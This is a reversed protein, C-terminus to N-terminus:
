KRMDALTEMARNFVHLVNKAMVMTWKPDKTFTANTTFAMAVECEMLLNVALNSTAALFVINEIAAEMKSLRMDAPSSNTKLGMVLWHKALAARYIVLSANDLVNFRANNYHQKSTYKKLTFINSTTTLPCLLPAANPAM